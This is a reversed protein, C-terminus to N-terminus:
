NGIPSQLSAGDARPLEPEARMNPLNGRSICITKSKNCDRRIQGTDGAVIPAFTPTALVVAGTAATYSEIDNQRGANAGTLWKFVGPAFYGDPNLLLTGTWTAVAGAGPPTTFTILGTGNVTYATTAVGNLYIHAITFGSTVREGATDLLQIVGTVGDGTFFPVATVTGTTGGPPVTFGPALSLTFDRDNEAGIAAVTAGYWSLPMKCRLDGYQARCTISTTEIISQQQLVQTLQRLEITCRLDDISTVQGIQGANLIAKGMTLNEYNVLYQVFRAGDYDGRAIGELTVGELPYGDPAALGQAESSDVSLGSKADIDFATYGAAAYYTLAGFGDDFTVDRNLTTIGFASAGSAATPMIKLLHCVTTAAGALHTALASDITRM